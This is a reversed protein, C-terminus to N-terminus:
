SGASVARSTAYAEAFEPSVQETSAPQQVRKSRMPKGVRRLQLQSSAVAFRSMECRVINGVMVLHLPVEGNVRVPWEIILEVNIDVNLQDHCAALIGSSSINLIRGVGSRLSRDLTRYFFPLSVPFRVRSRRDWTSGHSPTRERGLEADQSSQTDASTM